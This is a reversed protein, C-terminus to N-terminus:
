AGIKDKFHWEQLFHAKSPSEKTNKNETMKMKFEYIPTLFKACVTGRNEVPREEKAKDHGEKRGRERKREHLDCM